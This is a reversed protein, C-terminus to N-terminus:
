QILRMQSQLELLGLGPELHTAFDGMCSLTQSSAVASNELRIPLLSFPVSVPFNKKERKQRSSRGIPLTWQMVFTKSSVIDICSEQWLEVLFFFSQRLEFDSYLIIFAMISQNKYPWIFPIWMHEKATWIHFLFTFTIM